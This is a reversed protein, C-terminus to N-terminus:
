HAEILERPQDAPATKQSKARRANRQSLPIALARMIGWGTALYATATLGWGVDPYFHRAAALPAAVMLALGAVVFGVSPLITRVWSGEQLRRTVGRHGGRLFRAAAVLIALALAWSAAPVVTTMLLGAEAPQPEAGLLLRALELSLDYQGAHGAAIFASANTLVAIGLQDAEPALIVHATFHGLSGAHSVVREGGFEDAFWGTSHGGELPVDWGTPGAPRDSIDEATFPMVDAPEGGLHAQMFDALDGATSGIYGNPVSAIDYPLDAPLWRGFWQRHGTALDAAAPHADSAFTRDMGLPSFVRSDLYETFTVGTVEEVVGALLMAGANSYEYQEGPAGSLPQSLIEQVRRQLADPGTHVPMTGALGDAMTLGSTHSLLHEITVSEFGEAPDEAINSLLPVVPQDLSLVGDDVLQYVALSTFPKSVSGVLFPTDPDVPTGTSDAQGYGAVHVVEGGRVVAVAAGPIGHTNMRDQILDDIDGSTVTDPSVSGTAAHAGYTIGLTLMLAVMATWVLRLYRSPSAPPIPHTIPSM